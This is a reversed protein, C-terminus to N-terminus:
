VGDYCSVNILVKQTTSPVISHYTSHVMQESPSVSYLITLNGGLIVDSALPPTLMKSDM